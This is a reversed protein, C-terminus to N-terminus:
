TDLMRELTQAVLDLPVRYDSGGVPECMLYWYDHGVASALCYFTPIVYSPEFLELVSLRESFVISTVAAGHPAVLVAAEAFLRVQDALSMREPHVVDFGFAALARILEDENVARRKPATRRSVYLRRDGRSPDGAAEVLRGRLWRATWASPVGTHDPPQAWVLAEPALHAPTFPTLREDAIELM